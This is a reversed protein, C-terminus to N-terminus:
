ADEERTFAQQVIQDPQECIACTGITVPGNLSMGGPGFTAEIRSKLERWHLSNLSGDDDDTFVEFWAEREHPDLSMIDAEDWVFSPFPKVNTMCSIDRCDGCVNYHTAEEHTTTTNM